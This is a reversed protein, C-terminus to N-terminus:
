GTRIAELPEVRTADRAPIYCAVLAITSLVVAAVTWAVVDTDTIGFLVSRLLRAVGIALVAGVSLGAAVLMAGQGIVLIMLDSPTAGLAARVGIEHRRQTVSHAIVGYIGVAALLLAVAAFGGLAAARVRGATMSDSMWENLTTVRRVAVSRDVDAVAATVASRLRTADVTARVIVGIFDRPDQESSVYVVAHPQHDDFPTLREDAIVGIVEYSAAAASSGRPADMLLRQGVPDTEGFYNRAATDNIVAVLPSAARDDDSPTRGRRIRLGLVNFYGPGVVKLDAVSRQAREVLPQDARQVFTGRPAGNMPMGDLFAADFVGPIARMRAIVARMFARVDDATAFRRESVAFQVTLVNAVDFGSDATRMRQLSRILLGANTVLVFALAIQAIVLAGQLTRQAPSPGGRNAIALAGPTIRLMALSPAFGSLIGCTTCLTVAFALVRFDLRV